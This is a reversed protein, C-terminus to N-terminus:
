GKGRLRKTVEAAFKAAQKVRSAGDLSRLPGSLTVTLRAGDESHDVREVVWEVGGLVMQVIAVGTTAFGVRPRITPERPPPREGSLVRSVIDGDDDVTTRLHVVKPDDPPKSM